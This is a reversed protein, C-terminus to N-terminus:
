ALGRCLPLTCLFADVQDGYCRRLEIGAQGAAQEARGCAEDLADPDSASVTVYGSFRFQAHGDALEVERRAM